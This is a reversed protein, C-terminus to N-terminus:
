GMINITLEIFRGGVIAEMIGHIGMRRNWVILVVGANFGWRTEERCVM